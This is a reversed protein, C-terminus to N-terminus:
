NLKLEKKIHEIKKILSAKQEKYAERDSLKNVVSFYFKIKPETGSPRV